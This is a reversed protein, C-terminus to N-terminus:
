KNKKLQRYKKQYERMYAKRDKKPPMSINNVKELENIKNNKIIHEARLRECEINIDKLEDKLKKNEEELKNRSLIVQEYEIQLQKLIDEFM